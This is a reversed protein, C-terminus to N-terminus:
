LEKILGDTHSFIVMYEDKNTPLFFALATEFPDEFEEDDPCIAEEIDHTPPSCPQFVKGEDLPLLSLPAL